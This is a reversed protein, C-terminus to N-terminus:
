VITDSPMPIYRMLSNIFPNHGIGTKRELSVCGLYAQLDGLTLQESM